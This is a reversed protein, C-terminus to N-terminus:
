NQAGQLAKDAGQKMASGPQETDLGLTQKLMQQVTRKISEAIAPLRQRQPM